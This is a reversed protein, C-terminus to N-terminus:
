DTGLSLSSFQNQAKTWGYFGSQQGIVPCFGPNNNAEKNSM